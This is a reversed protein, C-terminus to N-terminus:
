RELTEGPRLVTEEISAEGPPADATPTVALGLPVLLAVARVAMQVRMFLMRGVKVRM